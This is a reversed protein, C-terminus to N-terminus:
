QVEVSNSRTLSIVVDILVLTQIPCIFVRLIVVQLGNLFLINAKRMTVIFPFVIYELNRLM